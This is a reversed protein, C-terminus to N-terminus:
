AALPGISALGTLPNQLRALPMSMVVNPQAADLDVVTIDFRRRLRASTEADLEVNRWHTEARRPIPRHGVTRGTVEM